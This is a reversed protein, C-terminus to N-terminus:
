LIETKNKKKEKEQSIKNDWFQKTVSHLEPFFNIQFDLKANWNNQKWSYFYSNTSCKM